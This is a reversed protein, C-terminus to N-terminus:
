NGRRDGDYIGDNNRDLGIRVGSGPPVSTFTIALDSDAAMQILAALTVPSAARRDPVFMSRNDYLFGAEGADLRIKAVLDCDGAAARAMMLEIRPRVLGATPTTLTIQQGVIPAMNSDFAMMFAEMQRRAVDGGPGLQFGNQSAANSFPIATLFRFLTDLGGDHLFGFGRIQDGTFPYGRNEFLPIGAADMSGTGFRGIKQYLNRLHPIKLPQPLKPDFTLFNIEGM